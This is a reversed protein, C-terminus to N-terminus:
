KNQGKETIAKNEYLVVAPNLWGISIIDLDGDGDIDVVQAGDHHEDGTYVLHSIWKDGWGDANEFVFLRAQAPDAYNHEGVVVDLDGDQDLDAVDLSMPGVVEAIQHEKWALTHPSRNEYWALKGATNIAEYGVVADPLGDGNIDALRNRDPNGRTEFLTHASWLSDGNRLWVTGLLLDMDGDLDIDGASLAEDQSVESLRRWSWHGEAPLEPLSLIQLGM